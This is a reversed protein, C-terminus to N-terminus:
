GEGGGMDLDLYLTKKGDTVGGGDRKIKLNKKEKGKKGLVEGGLDRKNPWSDGAHREDLM